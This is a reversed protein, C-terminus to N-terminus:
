LIWFIKGTSDPIRLKPVWRVIPIWFGFVFVSLSQFRTCGYRSDPIWPTSDLIWSQRPSLAQSEIPIDHTRNM